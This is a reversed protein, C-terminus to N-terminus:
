LWKEAWQQFTFLLWMKNPSVPKGAIYADLYYKITQENLLGHRKIRSPALYTVYLNKLEKTFWNHLPIEFGKKPANVIDNPLYRSLVRRLIYKTSKGCKYSVPMQLAYEVLKNDLFPERGELAVHMTARDVKVLVDDALCTELDILMMQTALSLFKIDELDFKDMRSIQKKIGLAVLENRSFYRNSLDYMHLLNGTNFVRNLADVSSSISQWNPSTINFHNNIWYTLQNLSNLGYDFSSRFKLFRELQSMRNSLTIYRPYGGFLEDGGDASLAVTVHERALKSVLYTPISSSDGFPEDYLFPLKKIVSFADKLSCYFETHETGLHASIKKAQNAEDFGNEHFGITFTRVPRSLNKQILATVLSSDIGGSLFVGVPVDAVLRLMFSDTLIEELEDVVDNENILPENQEKMLVYDIAKWYPKVSIEGDKTLTLFHGPLLKYTNEFITHPATINNYQFYLSLGQMDVSKRFKPHQHFAKLESAYLFLGDKHYWYLPKVGMRDRCLTITKKNEDWISFAWMGRFRSIADIGWCHFSKLIVETDSDSDFIYGKELLDKRITRYNYVEGNYCISLNEFQMPQHGLVSLDLISLRRHGVAVANPQDIYIGSDDPGGHQMTDRM